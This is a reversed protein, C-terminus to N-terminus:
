FSIKLLPLGKGDYAEKWSKKNFKLNLVPTNNYQSVSIERFIPSEIDKDNAKSIEEDSENNLTVKSALQAPMPKPTIENVLVPCNFSKTKISAMQDHCGSLVSLAAATVVIFLSKKLFNGQRKIQENWKAKFTNKSKM